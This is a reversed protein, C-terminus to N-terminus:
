GRKVETTEGPLLASISTYPNHRIHRIRRLGEIAIKFAIVFDDDPAIWQSKLSIELIEIAKDLIM